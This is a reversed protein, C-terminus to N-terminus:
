SWHLAFNAADEPNKFLWFRYLGHSDHEFETAPQWTIKENERGFMEQCWAKKILYDIQSSESLQSVEVPYHWGPYLARVM